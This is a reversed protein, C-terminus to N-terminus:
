SRDRMKADRAEKWEKFFKWNLAHILERVADADKRAEAALSEFKKRRYAEANCLLNFHQDYLADPARQRPVRPPKDTPM